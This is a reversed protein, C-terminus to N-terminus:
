ELIILGRGFDLTTATRGGPLKVSNDHGMDSSNVDIPM